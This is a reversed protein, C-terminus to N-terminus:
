RPGRSKPPGLSFDTPATLFRLARLDSDLVLVARGMPWHKAHGAEDYTIQEPEALYIGRPEDGTSYRALLGFVLKGDATEAIMWQEYHAALSDDWVYNGTRMSTSGFWVFWQLLRGPDARIILAGLVALLLVYVLYSAAGGWTLLAAAFQDQTPPLPLRLTLITLFDIVGSVFFSWIIYTSYDVKQSNGAARLMLELCVFGPIVLTILTFVEGPEIVAM